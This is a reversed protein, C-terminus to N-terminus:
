ENDDDEQPIESDAMEWDIEDNLEDREIKLREYKAKAKKGKKTEPFVVQDQTPSNPNRDAYKEEIYDIEDDIEQYQRIKKENVRRSIKSEIQKRKEFKIDRELEALERQGQVIRSQFENWTDGNKKYMEQRRQLKAIEAKKKTLRKDYAGEKGIRDWREAEKKSMHERRDKGLPSYNRSHGDTWKGDEARPHQSEDWPQKKNAMVIVNDNALNRTLQLLINACQEDSFTNAIFSFLNIKNQNNM